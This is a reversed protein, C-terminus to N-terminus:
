DYGDFLENIDKRIPNGAVLPMQEIQPLQSEYSPKDEKYFVGLPVAKEGFEQAKEFATVKNTVDHDDGLYYTNEQYFDHTLVKNFTHCPQMVDVLAFGKHNNAAIILEKAKELDGTFARAVFTAGAAIAVALPNLPWDPNGQPTSKTVFDHPTAPSTQGTTLAYLGNDHLILTIDHNRRATHVLHNCGEALSDGDGSFVFTNLMHNAMKIGVAVPVARGHLSEFSTLKTFNLIHGHCGIGAVLATNTNDWGEEVAAKKFSGWLALNGCGPCWNPDCPTKLQELTPM